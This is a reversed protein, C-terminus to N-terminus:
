LVHKLSGGSSSHGNESHHPICRGGCLTGRTGTSCPQARGHVATCPLKGYGWAWQPVPADPIVPIPILSLVDNEISVYISVGVRTTAEVPSIVHRYTEGSSSQVKEIRWKAEPVNLLVPEHFESANENIFGWGAQNHILSRIVFANPTDIAPEVSWNDNVGSIVGQAVGRIPEGVEGATAYM